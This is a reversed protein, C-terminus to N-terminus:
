FLSVSIKDSNGIVMTVAMTEGLARGLGLMAAGFIGRVSYRLVALRTVEWRTAGLAFAAERQSDPVARFVERAISTIIPLIMIAILVSASLMCFGTTPGRFFPLFGFYKLLLPYPGEAAVAGVRLHGLSGLVVSPIAALMEIMSIAPQRVWGPALETLYIATGLSLPLAILLGVFSSVFTGFIFTYAGFVESVPNWDSQAFFDWGFKSLSLASGKRLTWGLLVLLALVMMAMLWTLLRFAQDGVKGPPALSLGAPSGTGGSVAAFNM